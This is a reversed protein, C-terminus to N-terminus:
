IVRKGILYVLAEKKMKLAFFDVIIFLIIVLVGTLNNEGAIALFENHNLENM